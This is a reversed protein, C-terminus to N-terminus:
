IFHEAPKTSLPRACVPQITVPRRAITDGIGALYSISGSCSAYQMDPMRYASLNDATLVQLGSGQM